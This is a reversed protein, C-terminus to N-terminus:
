STIHGLVTHWNDGLWSHDGAVDVVRVKALRDVLYGMLEPPVTEDNDAAWITVSQTVNGLDFTWPHSLAQYDRLATPHTAWSSEATTGAVERLRPSLPTLADPGSLPGPVPSVLHVTAVTDGLLAATALCHAGGGSWGLLAVQGLEMIAVVESTDRAVSEVFTAADTGALTPRRASLLRVGFSEAANVAAKLEGGATSPSHFYLVPTGDVPGVSVVEAAAGSELTVEEVQM